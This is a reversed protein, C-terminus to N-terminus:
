FELPHYFDQVVGKIIRYRTRAMAFASLDDPSDSVVKHISSVISHQRQWEILRRLKQEGKCNRSLLRKRRGDNHEFRTWIWDEFGLGVLVPPLLFDPSASICIPWLGDARDQKLTEYVWTFIKRQGEEKWFRLVWLALQDESFLNLFSLFAEKAKETSFIGLKWLLVAILQYPLFLIISPKRQLTYKWFDVLSDGNYLTGDFDYVSLRKKGMGKRKEETQLM